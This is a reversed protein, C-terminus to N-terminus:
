RSDYWYERVKLTLAEPGRLAHWVLAPTQTFFHWDGHRDFKRTSSITKVDRLRVLRQGRDRGLRKLRSLFHVDEAVLRTEDYGGLTAFDARRCFVVGTDFGTLWVMPLLCAYTLAIGASWREMVVGTAGGVVRMDNMHEQIEQLSRPHIVSDSDVFALIDGRAAVAGGNRAAAICRKAVAVVRAGEAEAIKATADTSANDAVIVEIPVACRARAATISQLLRPLYETENYAPIILSLRPLDAFFNRDNM